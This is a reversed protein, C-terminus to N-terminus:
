KKSGLFPPRPKGVLWGGGSTKELHGSRIAEGRLRALYNRITYWM